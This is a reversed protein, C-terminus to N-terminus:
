HHLFSQRSTLGKSRKSSKDNTRHPQPKGPPRKRHLQTAVGNEKGSRGGEFPNNTGTHKAALLDSPRPANKMSIKKKAVSSVRIALNSYRAASIDAKEIQSKKTSSLHQYAEDNTRQSSSAYKLLSARERDSSFSPHDASAMQRLSKAFNSMTQKKKKKPPVLDDDTQGSQSRFSPNGQLRKELCRINQRLEMNEKEIENTRKIMIETEVMSTNSFKKRENEHKKEMARMDSLLMKERAQTSKLQDTLNSSQGELRVVRLKLGELELGQHKTSAEYEAFGAELEAYDQKLLKHKELLQSRQRQMESQTSALQRARRKYRKAIRKLRKPCGPESEEITADQSVQSAPINDSSIAATAPSSSQDIRQPSVTLDVIGDQNVSPYIEEQRHDNLLDVINTAGNDNPHNNAQVSTPGEPLDHRTGDNEEHGVDPVDAVDKEDCDNQDEDEDDFEDEEKEDPTKAVTSCSSLSCDDDDSNAAEPAALFFKM